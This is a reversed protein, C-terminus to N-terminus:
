RYFRDLMRQCYTGLRTREHFYDWLPSEVPTWHTLAMFGFVTADIDAPEEGFFFPGDGVLEDIADLVLKGMEIIQAQDHRGVGRAYLQKRLSSRVLRPVIMRMTPPLTDWFEKGRRWGGEHIFLQHEWVQHYHEELMLRTATALALDRPSRSGVPALRRRDSITEIVLQSDAISRGDVVVWPCKGKPGKRPDNEVHVQHPVGHLKLWTILKLGFPSASPVPIGWAPGFTYVDIPRVDTTMTREEAV